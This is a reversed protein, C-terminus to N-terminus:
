LTIHVLIEAFIEPCFLHVDGGLGVFHKRSGAFFRAVYAMTPTIARHGFNAGVVALHAAVVAAFGAGAEFLSQPAIRRAGADSRLLHADILLFRNTAEGNRRWAKATLMLVAVM